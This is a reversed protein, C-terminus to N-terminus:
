WGEYYCRVVVSSLDGSDIEKHGVNSASSGQFAQLKGTSHNWLLPYGLSSKVAAGPPILCYITGLGLNAATIAWGGASYSGDLTVDVWGSRMGRRPPNYRQNSFALAM